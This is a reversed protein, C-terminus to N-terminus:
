HRLKSFIFRGLCFNQISKKATKLRIQPFQVLVETVLYNQKFLITKPQKLIKVIFTSYNM